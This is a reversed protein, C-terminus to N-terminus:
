RSRWQSKKRLRRDHKKRAAVDVNSHSSCRRAALPSTTNVAGGTVAELMEAMVARLEAEHGPVPFGHVGAAIGRSTHHYLAYGIGCCRRSTEQEVAVVLTRITADMDGDDQATVERQPEPQRPAPDKVNVVRSPGDPCLFVFTAARFQIGTRASLAALTLQSNETYPDYVDYAKSM